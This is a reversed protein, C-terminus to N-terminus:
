LADLGLRSRGGLTGGGMIPSPTVNVSTVLKSSSDLIIAQGLALALISRFTMLRLNTLGGSQLVRM